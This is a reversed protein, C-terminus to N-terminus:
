KKVFVGVGRVDHVTNPPRFMCVLRREIRPDIEYFFRSVKGLGYALRQRVPSYYRARLNFRGFMFLMDRVKRKYEPTYRFFYDEYIYTDDYLNRQFYSTVEYPNQVNQFIVMGADQYRPRLWWDAFGASDKYDEYLATNPYPVVAGYCQFAYVMPEITNILDMTNQVHAPTEWPFGTMLNIYMNLGLEHTMKVTEIVEERTYGKHIRKLTDNDGSEVGYIVQFCGARKMLQMLERDATNIHSAVLWRLKLRRELILECIRRANKKNVMFNDDDMCFEQYGFDKQLCEIQEVVREASLTVHKDGFVAKDCFTCQFPCGRSMFIKNGAKITGDPMRFAELDYLRIDPLPLSDLDTIRPRSATRCISGGPKRFCIGRVDQMSRGAPDKWYSCLDDVTLEGEGIVVVDCGHDLSEEPRITPHVGGAMVLPGAAKVRRMLEYTDLVRFTIFSFGVIDPKFESIIEMLADNSLYHRFTNVVIKVEYGNRIFVPAIAALGGPPQSVPHPFLLLVRRGRPILTMGADFKTITHQNM